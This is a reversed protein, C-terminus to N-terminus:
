SEITITTGNIRTTTIGPKTWDDVVSESTPTAYDIQSAPNQARIADM